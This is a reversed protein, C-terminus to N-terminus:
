QLQPRLEAESLEAGIHVEGPSSVTRHISPTQTSFACKLGHLLHTLSRRM